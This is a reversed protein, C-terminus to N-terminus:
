NKRFDKLEEMLMKRAIFIRSKVTGIPLNMEQAIEHYHYGTYFRTFPKKYAEDLKDIAKVIESAHLVQETEKHSASRAISKVSDEGKEAMFTRAKVQRRYNNIFTNKMITYLWAKLNTADTYKDKYRLAKLFTDQLLDEADDRNHTLSLAFSKLPSREQLLAHNFEIATM